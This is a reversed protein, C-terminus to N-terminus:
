KWSLRIRFGTNLRSFVTNQEPYMYNNVFTLHSVHLHLSVVTLFFFCFKVFCVWFPQGGWNWNENEILITNKNEGKKRQFKSSHKFCAKVNFSTFKLKLKRVSLERRRFFSFWMKEAKALRGYM